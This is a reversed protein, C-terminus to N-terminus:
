GRSIAPSHMPPSGDAFPMMTPDGVSRAHPNACSADFRRRAKNFYHIVQPVPVSVRTGDGLVVRLAFDSYDHWPPQFLAGQYIVDAGAAM